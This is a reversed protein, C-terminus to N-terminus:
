ALLVAPKKISLETPDIKYQNVNTSYRIANEKAVYQEFYFNEKTHPRGYHYWEWLVKDADSVKFKKIEDSLNKPRWITLREDFNFTILLREETGNFSVSVIRHYNDGPRGFWSGWFCLTGGITLSKESNFQDVFQMATM